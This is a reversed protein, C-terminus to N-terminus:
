FRGRKPSGSIDNEPSYARKKPIYNAGTSSTANRGEAFCDNVIFCGYINFSIGGYNRIIHAIDLGRENAYQCSMTRGKYPMCNIERVIQDVPARNVVLIFYKRGGHSFKPCIALLDGKWDILDRVEYKNKPGNLYVLVGEVEQSSLGHNVVVAPKKADQLKKIDEKMQAIQEELNEIKLTITENGLQASESDPEAEHDLGALEPDCEEKVRVPEYEDSSSALTIPDNECKGKMPEPTYNAYPKVSDYCGQLEEWCIRFFISNERMRLISRETIELMSDGFGICMRKHLDSSTCSTKMRFILTTMVQEEVDWGFISITKNM